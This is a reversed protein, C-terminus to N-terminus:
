RFRRLIESIEGDGVDYWHEYADAVSFSFGGRVNACWLGNAINAISEV